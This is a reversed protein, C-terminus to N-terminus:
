NFVRLAAVSGAALGAEELSAYRQALQRSVAGVAHETLPRAADDVLTGRTREACAQACDLMQEWPSFEPPARPVDLLLTLQNARDGLALSFLVEAAEGLRAFRNNGREVLDLGAALASLEGPSMARPTEVNIGIQADLQACAEDLERARELVQAMDPVVPHGGLQRGLAGIAAAFDTFEMANLPGHRNALLVGM